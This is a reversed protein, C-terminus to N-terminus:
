TKAGVYTQVAIIEKIIESEDQGSKEGKLQILINNHFNDIKKKNKLLLLPSSFLGFSKKPETSAFRAMWKPDSEVTYIFYDVGYIVVKPIGAYKKYVNYFYYNYKPGKGQFTEKFARQKTKRELYTTNIGEFSRSTGFILTNFSKGSMYKEFQQEFENQSYMSAEARFIVYYLGRDFLFLFFVLLFFGAGYKWIKKGNKGPQGNTKIGM